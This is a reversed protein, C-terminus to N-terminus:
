PSSRSDPVPIVLVPCKAHRLVRETTSGILLRAISGRAHKAMVILGISAAEAYDLIALDAHLGDKFAITVSAGAPGGARAIAAEIEPTRRVRVTNLFEAQNVPPSPLTESPTLVVMPPTVVVHLVHLDTGLRRSLRLSEDLSVQCAPTFDFPCLVHKVQDLTTM